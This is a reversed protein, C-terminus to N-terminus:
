EGISSCHGAIMIGSIMSKAIIGYSSFEQGDLTYKIEGIATSATLWNDETFVIMNHIIKLQKPEFASEIDNLARASIGNKNIIIDETDANKIRFLPSIVSHIKNHMNRYYQVHINM